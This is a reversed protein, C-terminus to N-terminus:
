GHIHKHYYNTITDLAHNMYNSVSVVAASVCELQKKTISVNAIVDINFYGTMEDYYFDSVDFHILAHPGNEKLVQEVIGKVIANLKLKAYHRAFGDKYLQKVEKESLRFERRIFDKNIGIRKIVAISSEEMNVQTVYYKQGKRKELYESISLRIADLENFLVQKNTYAEEGLLLGYFQEENCNPERLAKYIPKAYDTEKISSLLGEYVLENKRNSLLVRKLEYIKQGQENLRNTTIETM